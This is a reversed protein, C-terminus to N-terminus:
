EHSSCVVRGIHVGKNFILPIALLNVKYIIKTLKRFYERFDIRLHEGPYFFSFSVFNDLEM